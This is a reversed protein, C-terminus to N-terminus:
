PVEAVISLTRTAIERRRPEEIVEDRGSLLIRAADICSLQIPWGIAATIVEVPPLCQARSSALGAKLLGCDTPRITFLRLMATEFRRRVSLDSM